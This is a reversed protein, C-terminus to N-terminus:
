SMLCVAELFSQHSLRYQYVDNADGQKLFLDTGLMKPSSAFFFLQSTVTVDKPRHQGVHLRQKQIRVHRDRFLFMVKFTIM